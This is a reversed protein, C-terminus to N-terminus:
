LGTPSKTGKDGLPRPGKLITTLGPRIVIPEQSVRSWPFVDDRSEAVKKSDGRRYAVPPIEQCGLELELVRKEAGHLADGLPTRKIAMITPSDSDAGRVAGAEEVFMEWGDGKKIYYVLLKFRPYWMDEAAEASEDGEDGVKEYRWVMEVRFSEEFADAAWQRVTLIYSRRGELRGYSTMPDQVANPEFEPVKMISTYTRDGTGLGMNYGDMEAWDSKVSFTSKEPEYWDLDYALEVCATVEPSVERVKGEVRARIGAGRSAKLEIWRPNRTDIRNLAEPGVVGEGGGSSVCGPAIGGLLSAVVTALRVVVNRSYQSACM